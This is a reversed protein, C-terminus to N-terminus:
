SVRRTANSPDASWEKFSALELDEAESGETGAYGKSDGDDEDEFPDWMLISKLVSIEPKTGSTTEVASTRESTKSPSAIQAPSKRDRIFPSLRAGRSGKIKFLGRFATMSCAILGM